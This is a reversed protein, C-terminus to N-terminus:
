MPPSAGDQRSRCSLRADGCRRRARRRPKRLAPATPVMPRYRGRRGHRRGCGPRATRRCGPRVRDFTGPGADGPQRQGRRPRKATSGRPRQRLRSCESRGPYSLALRRATHEVICGIGIGRLKGNMMRDPPQKSRFAEYGSQDLARLLCKQFTGSTYPVSVPTM